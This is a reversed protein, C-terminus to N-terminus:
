RSIKENIDKVNIVWSLYGANIDLDLQEKQNPRLQDRPAKVEVSACQGNKWVKLDLYASVGIRNEFTLTGLKNTLKKIEILLDLYYYRPDTNSLKSVEEIQDNLESIPLVPLHVGLFSGIKNHLDFHNNAMDSRGYFTGDKIMKVKIKQFILSSMNWLVMLEKPYKKNILELFYEKGGSAQYYSILDSAKLDCLKQWDKRAREGNRTKRFKAKQNNWDNLVKPIDSLQFNIANNLLEECTFEHACHKWYGDKAFAFLCIRPFLYFNEPDSLKPTPFVSHNKWCMMHILLEDYNFQETFYGQWGNDKLYELVALEVSVIESSKYQWEKPGHKKLYITENKYKLM